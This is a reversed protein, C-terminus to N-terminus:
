QNVAAEADECEAEADVHEVDAAQASHFHDRVQQQVHRDLLARLQPYVTVMMEEPILPIIAMADRHIPSLNKEEEFDDIGALELVKRLDVGFLESMRRCSEYSPSRQMPNDDDMMWRGVTGKFVGIERALKAYSWDRADLESQLWRRFERNSRKHHYSHTSM